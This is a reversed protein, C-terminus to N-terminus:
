TAVSGTARKVHFTALVDDYQRSRWRFACSLCEHRRYTFRARHRTELTRSDSQCKPCPRGHARERVIREVRAPTLGYKEAIQQLTAGDQRWRRIEANRLSTDMTAIVPGGAEVLHTRNVATM